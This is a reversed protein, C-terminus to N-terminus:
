KYSECVCVNKIISSIGLMKIFNTKDELFFEFKVKLASCVGGNRKDNAKIDIIIM